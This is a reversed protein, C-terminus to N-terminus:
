VKFRADTRYMDMIEGRCKPCETIAAPGYFMCDLMKGARVCEAMVIMRVIMRVSVNRVSLAM